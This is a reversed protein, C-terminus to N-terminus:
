VEKSFDVLLTVNCFESPTNKYIAAFTVNKDKELARFLKFANKINDFYAETDDHMKYEEDWVVFYKKM